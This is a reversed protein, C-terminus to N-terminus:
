NNYYSLKLSSDPLSIIEGFVNLSHINVYPRPLWRHRSNLRRFAYTQYQAICYSQQERVNFKHAIGKIVM